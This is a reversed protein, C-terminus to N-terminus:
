QGGGTPSLPTGGGHGLIAGLATGGGTPTQSLVQGAQVAAMANQTGEAQQRAKMKAADMKAVQDPTYFIRPNANALDGYERLAEDLNIVRLPSEVGAAIAAESLEGGTQLVDKLAVSQASRQALKMISIYDMKLPMNRLSNPKPRLMRNRSMIAMVREIAPGAFETEFLHVVPGLVQLRELDRKTLELENRPQVGEMRSIAMFVDVFFGREVREQVQKIDETLGSLWTPNPEFLPWFGKKGGQSSVYTINSPLISSPENKLEPDAGMPPRVGKEIFEAKRLTELQIQKTDGLNDM